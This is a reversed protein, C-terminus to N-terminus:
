KATPAASSSMSKEPITNEVPKKTINGSIRLVETSNTANSMVTISKNIPGMRNTDYKVKIKEKKGPLIPERPWSPVTCGCSSRVSSLILPEKGTNTFEFECNGDGGVFLTGYDHVTKDFSIKPANPNENAKTNNAEQAFVASLTFLMLATISLCKKMKSSNQTLFLKSTQGCFYCM